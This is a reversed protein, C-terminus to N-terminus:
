KEKIKTSRFVRRPSEKVGEKHPRGRLNCIRVSGIVAFVLREKATCRVKSNRGAGGGTEKGGHAGRKGRLAQTARRPEYGIPGWIQRLVERQVM